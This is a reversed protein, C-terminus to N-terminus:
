AMDVTDLDPPNIIMAWWDEGHYHNEAYENATEADDFPGHLKLGDFPNGTALAYKENM